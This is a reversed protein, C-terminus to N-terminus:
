QGRFEAKRKALFATVGEIFDASRGADRQNVRETALTEALTGSLADAVAHRIMAMARTPGAALRRALATAEALLADDEVVRHILGWDLAQEATIREGLLMMELAKARGVAKAVLWTAGADPVLGINVFALLFYASRGAVVLDGLLALSCGAGAAAGNVASVVPVPLAAIKTVLPNYTEELIAGVDEPLGGVLDAGSSFARGEGAFLIARAGEALARDLAASLEDFMTASIANLREPRNLTITAVGEDLAYRIATYDSM